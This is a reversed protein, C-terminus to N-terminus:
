AIANRFKMLWFLSSFPEREKDYPIGLRECIVRVKVRPNTMEFDKWDIVAVEGATNCLSEVALASMVLSVFHGDSCFRESNKAAGLYKEASRLLAHHASFHRKQIVTVMNM